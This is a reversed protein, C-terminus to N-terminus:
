RSNSVRTHGFQVVGEGNAGTNFDEAAAVKVWTREGDLFIRYRTSM